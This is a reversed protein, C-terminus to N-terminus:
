QITFSGKYIGSTGGVKTYRVLYFYTGKNAKIGNIHGDWRTIRGRSSFALQGWRNYIHIEISELVCGPDVDFADNIGDQNPTIINPIDFACTTDIVSTSDVTEVDEEEDEQEDDVPDEEEPVNCSDLSITQRLITDCNNQTITVFYSGSDSVAIISDTLGNSWQYIANNAIVGIQITDGDCITTDAGLELSFGTHIEVSVSDTRTDCENSTFLWYTGPSSISQSTATSTGNWLFSDVGTTDINIQLVEGQCLFTDNMSQSVLSLALRIHLSDSVTDCSTVAQAWITNLGVSLESAALEYTGGFAGNWWLISDQNAASAVLTISDGSCLFSDGSLFITPPDAIAVYYTDVLTDCANGVEVFYTGASDVTATATSDGTSWEFSHIASDRISTLELGQSQCLILENFSRADNSSPYVNILRSFTDASSDLHVIYMSTFAGSSDYTHTPSSLTSTEGDGFHWRVSDAQSTNPIFKVIGNCKIKVDFYAPHFFSQVFDPLGLAALNGGLYVASDTFVLNSGQEQPNELRSLHTANMRTGYIKKDIGIQLGYASVGSSVEYASTAISTSDFNSLDYQKLAYGSTYISNSFYLYKSNASFEAGYTVMTTDSLKVTQLVQGTEDDFRHIFAQIPYQYTGVLNCEALYRGDPSSKIQGQFGFENDPLLSIVPNPNIGNPTVLWALLSDNPYSRTIIWVDRGNAHHVATTKESTGLALNINKEAPLIEGFPFNATKRIISYSHGNSWGQTIYYTKLTDLPDPIYLAGQTSSFSGWLGLGNEVTDHNGDLTYEPQGYYELISNPTSLSAVGEPSYPINSNTLFNPVYNTFLM